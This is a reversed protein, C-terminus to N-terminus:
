RSPKEETKSASVKPEPNMAKTKKAKASAERREALAKKQSDTLLAECESAIEAHIQAIQKHLEQLKEHHKQRIKYIAEKQEPTLGIQGYYRPVRRTLDGKASGSAAKTGEAGSGPAAEQAVLPVSLLAVVTAAIGIVGTLKRTLM